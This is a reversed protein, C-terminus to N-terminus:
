RFDFGNTKGGNKTRSRMDIIPVGLQRFRTIVQEGTLPERAAEREARERNIAEKNLMYKAPDYRGNKTNVASLM